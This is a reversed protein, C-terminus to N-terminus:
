FTLVDIYGNDGVVLFKNDAYIIDNWEENDNKIINSFNEVDTTTIISAQSTETNQKNGGIVFRDNGFAICKPIIPCTIKEWDRFNLTSFIAGESIENIEDITKYGCVILKGNSITASKFIYNDGPSISYWAFGDGSWYVEGLNGFVFWYISNSILYYWNTRSSGIHFPTGWSTGTGDTNVSIFGGSGAIIFQGGWQGIGYTICNTRMNILNNVSEWSSGDTSYRIRTKSQDVDACLIFKNNGYSVCRLNDSTSITTTTWNIGDTSKGITNNKGVAVYISNGYAVSLWDNSGIKYRNNTYNKSFRILRNVFLRM